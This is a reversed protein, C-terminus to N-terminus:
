VASLLAELDLIHVVSSSEKIRDQQIVVVWRQECHVSFQVQEREMWSVSTLEIWEEPKKVVRDMLQKEHDKRSQAPEEVHIIPREKSEDAKGETTTHSSSLAEPPPSLTSVSSFVDVLDNDRAIQSENETRLDQPSIQRKWFKQQQFSKQTAVDGHSPSELLSLQITPDSKLIDWLWLSTKGDHDIQCAVMRSSSSAFSVPNSGRYKHVLDIANGKMAYMSCEDDTDKGCDDGDRVRSQLVTLIPWLSPQPLDEKCEEFFQAPITASLILPMMHPDTRLTSASPNMVSAADTKSVPESHNRLDWLVLSTGFSALVLSKTNQVSVLSSVTHSAGICHVYEAEVTSKLAGKDAGGLVPVVCIAGPEDAGLALLYGDESDAWHKIMVGQCRMDLKAGIWSIEVRNADQHAWDSVEQLQLKLYSRENPRLVVAFSDDPAFIVQIPHDDEKDLQIRRCWQGKSLDHRHLQWFQVHMSTEVAIWEDQHGCVTSTVNHRFDDICWVGDVFATSTVTSSGQSLESKALPAVNTSKVIRDSKPHQHSDQEEEKVLMRDNNREVDEAFGCILFDPMPFTTEQSGLICHMDQSPQSGQSDQVEETDQFHDVPSIAQRESKISREFSDQSSDDEESGPIEIVAVEKPTTSAAGHLFSQVSTREEEPEQKIILQPSERSVHEPPGAITHKDTPPAAAMTSPCPASDRHRDNFIIAGPSKTAKVHKAPGKASPTVTSAATPYVGAHTRTESLAAPTTLAATAQKVNSKTSPVKQVASKGKPNLVRTPKATNTIEGLAKVEPRTSSKELPNRNEKDVDVGADKARVRRRKTPLADKDKEQDHDKYVEIKPRKKNSGKAKNAVLERSNNTQSTLTSTSPEKKVVTRKPKPATTSIPQSSRSAACKEAHVTSSSALAPTKPYINPQTLPTQSGIPHSTAGAEQGQRSTSRSDSPRSMLPPTPSRSYRALHPLLLEKLKIFEEKEHNTLNRTQAAIIYQKINQQLVLMETASM